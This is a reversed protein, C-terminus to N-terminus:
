KEDNMYVVKGGKFFDIWKKKTIDPISAEKIARFNTYMSTKGQVIYWLQSEATKSDKYKGCEITFIVWPYEVNEDKEIFTLISKPCTKKSEEYMLNMAKDMPIGTVGKISQMTGIETWNEFTENNRLLEIMMMQENEQNSGVKWNEEEPWHLMLSEGGQQENGCYKALYKDAAPDGIEKARKFDECCAEKNQLAFHIQGRLTLVNPFIENMEVVNNLDTLANKYNEQNVYVTARSYYAKIFKNDLEITKNFDALAGKYDYTALKITGRNFYASALKDDEKIANNYDKLAGKYDQKNHKEIGSDLYEQATQGYSNITTILIFISVLKKM